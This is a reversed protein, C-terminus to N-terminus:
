YRTSFKDVLKEIKKLLKEEEKSFEKMDKETIIVGSDIKEQMTRQLGRLKKQDAEILARYKYEQRMSTKRPDIFHVKPGISQLIASAKTQADKTESIFGGPYFGRELKKGAYSPFGSIPVNPIFAKGAAEWKERGTLQGTGFDPVGLAARGLAGAAGGQKLPQAWQPVFPLQYGRETAPEFIEGGPKARSIGWYATEGEPGKMFPVRIEKPIYFPLGHVTGRQEPPMTRREEAIAEPDGFQEGFSNLGHWLLAWKAMKWPRKVAIEGLRPIIGYMYAVFPLLTHRLTQLLPTKVSYDVFGKRATTAAGVVLKEYLDDGIRINIGKKAYNEMGEAVLTKFLGLRYVYDESQYLKSLADYSYKKTARGLKEM